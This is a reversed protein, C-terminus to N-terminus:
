VLGNYNKDIADYHQSGLKGHCGLWFLTSVRLIHNESRIVHGQIAEYGGMYRKLSLVIKFKRYAKESALCAYDHPIPCMGAIVKWFPQRTDFSVPMTYKSLQM